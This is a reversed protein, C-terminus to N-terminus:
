DTLCFEQVVAAMARAQALLFLHGGDVVRLTANPIYKALIEGNSLPVLPDDKGALVLTPQSIRHLWFLSTWGMMAYLQAYYGVFSPPRMLSAHLRAVEPNDRYEGGYLIPGLEKLRSPQFYRLPSVLKLLASPKGPISIAGTSTSVLILRRCRQPYQYAFQQALGGGWSIGLVDVERYGLQTLLRNLLRALGSVRQPCLRAPSSGVGPLDFRVSGIRGASVESLAHVFPDLMELNAGLGNILLLPPPSGPQIAVHLRVGGVDITEIRTLPETETLSM